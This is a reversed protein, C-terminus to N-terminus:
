RPCARGDAIVAGLALCCLALVASWWATAQQMLGFAVLVEAIGMARRTGPSEAVSKFGAVALPVAVLLRFVALVDDM